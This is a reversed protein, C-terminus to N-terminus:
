KSRLLSFRPGVNHFDLTSYRLCKNKEGRGNLALIRKLMLAVHRLHPCIERRLDCHLSIGMEEECPGWNWDRFLYLRNSVDEGLATPGV